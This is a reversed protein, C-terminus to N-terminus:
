QGSYDVGAYKEAVGHICKMYLPIWHQGYFSYGCGSVFLTTNFDGFAEIVGFGCEKAHEIWEAPPESRFEFLTNWMPYNERSEGVYERVAYEYHRLVVEGILAEAEEAEKEMEEQEDADLFDYFYGMADDIDPEEQQIFEMLMMGEHEAEREYVGLQIFNFNRDVFLEAERKLEWAKDSM